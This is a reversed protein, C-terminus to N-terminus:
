KQKHLEALEISYELAESNVSIYKNEFKYKPFWKDVSGFKDYVIEISDISDEKDFLYYFDKDIKTTYNNIIGKKVLELRMILTELQGTTYGCLNGKYFWNFKIIPPFKTINKIGNFNM